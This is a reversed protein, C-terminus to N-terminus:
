ASVALGINVTVTRAYAFPQVAVAIILNGDSLIIHTRNVTAAAAVADQPQTDVLGTNLASDIQAEIQQAKKETIVGAIGNRTTTPIKSNVLPLAQRRAIGCALDIVRANTLPYYDSTSFTLTYASTIYFGPFGPFTRLTGLGAADLAPTKNEDRVISVVGPLGGLGVFGLNQSAEVAVGRTIATWQAGRLLSLGSVPNVLTANGAWGSVYVASVGARATIVASDTDTSDVVVAGASASISGITPCINMVRLYLGNNFMQLAFTELTACQTAWAAANVLGSGTVCVLSAAIQNIYTTELATIASALATAGSYQGATKFSYTDGLVATGSLALVIGTGPIAYSSATVINSSVSNGNDLSYTIQSTGVAGANTVTLIVVYDDIPSTTTITPVAPGSGTPHTVAGLTSVLYTDQTATSAYTGATFVVVCYTGPVLYGTSSWGSVSTVPASVTGSGLQFTFAATGLTGGTTCAITISSTPATTLTVTMGGTGVHTVSSVGGETDLAMPMMQVPGGSNALLYGGLEVLQGAGLQQQMTSVDGFSYLTNPTGLTCPGLLLATHENSGPSLALNGDLVNVIVGPLGM